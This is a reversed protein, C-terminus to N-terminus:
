EDEAEEEGELLLYVTAGRFSGVLEDGAENLRADLLEGAGIMAFFETSTCSCIGGQTLALWGCDVPEYDLTCANASMSFPAASATTFFCRDPQEQEIPDQLACWADWPAFTKLPIQLRSDDLTAGHLPYSGGVAPPQAYAVECAFYEDEFGTDCLYAQDKQSAPAPEGM